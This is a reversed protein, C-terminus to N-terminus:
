HKLEGIIRTEENMVDAAYGAILRCNRIAPILRQQLDTVSAFRQAPNKALCRQLIADLAKVEKSEGELHYSGHLMATLLEAQTRGFFPRRGTLAEVIMVGISFIDSREDVEEGTLQEPSMYGFTGVISGRATLSSNIVDIQAVKALGFDLIKIRSKDKDKSILINEPKLDRHIVAAEHAAKVGELIQDFYDAATGPDIKEKRALESRLTLGPVLEMVLYAGESGIAGYDYIAIINIHNLRASMRAEREFRRLAMPDGFMSGLMVKIAVNRHLRLDAAQYVAGMGGKGILCELRYKGDITREVPLSLTLESGDKHCREDSSDYCAGCAPCEKVLNINQEEFRALVERKIKQEKNVRAKLLSNERVIAIERAIAQLMKRDNVSYPEESKKEGLLLLGVARQDSGCMPVILSIGLQDLWEAEEAPLADDHSFPYEQVGSVREITRMLHSTDPISVVHSSGASSYALTLDRHEEERYFAHISRPHLAADIEDSVLKSIESMSNFEKIEDILGLLIREQDYAERFFKRDIRDRLQKRFRLGIAALAILSLYVPNHSVIDSITQNRNSIITYAFAVLPLALLIQLVHKALLYQLGRRVVVNIDFLRHKIIAYGWTVPVIGIAANAVQNLTVFTDTSLVQGQGFSNLTVRSVLIFIEPLIGLMSGYVVWKMRRHQDVDTVLRYNRMLIVCYAVLALIRYTQDFTSVKTAFSVAYFMSMLAPKATFFSYNQLTFIVCLVIGCAYFFVKLLEWFRGRTAGTPIRLFFHYGIAVPLPNVAQILFLGIALQFGHLFTLITPGIAINLFLIANAMSSMSAIQAIRQEPKLFGILFGVVFFAIAVLLKPLIYIFNKPDHEISLTFGYEHEFTGRLVRVTYAGDPPIERLIRLPYVSGITTDDNIALVKDGVQLRDGTRTSNGSAGVYNVYCGDSKTVYSWGFGRGLSGYQIIMAVAFVYLLLVIAGFGLAVWLFPHKRDAPETTSIRDVRSHTTAM